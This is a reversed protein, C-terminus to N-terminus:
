AGRSAAPLPARPVTVGCGRMADRFEVGSEGDLPVVLSQLRQACCVSQRM